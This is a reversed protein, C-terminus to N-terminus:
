VILEPHEYINGIVEINDPEFNYYLEMFDRDDSYWSKLYFGTMGNFSGDYGIKGFCIESIAHECKVIDGEYIEKGNKDKLGTYQMLHFDPDNENLQLCIWNKVEDWYIMEKGFEYFARFKIERM